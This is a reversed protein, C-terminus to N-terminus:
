TNINAYATFFDCIVFAKLLFTNKLPMLHHLKCQSSQFSSKLMKKAFILIERQLIEVTKESITNRYLESDFNTLFIFIVNRLKFSVMKIPPFTIEITRTRM